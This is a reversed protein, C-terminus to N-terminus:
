VTVTRDGRAEANSATDSGLPWSAAIHDDLFELQSKSADKDQVMTKLRRVNVESLSRVADEFDAGKLEFLGGLTEDDLEDASREADPSIPGGVQILMGNKFPNHQVKRIQEEIIIREDATIRLRSEKGVISITQPRGLSNLVSFSNRGEITSEWIEKEGPAFSQAM